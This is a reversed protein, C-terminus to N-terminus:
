RPSDPTWARPREAAPRQHLEAMSREYEIWPELGAAARREELREVDEVLPLEYLLVGGEGFVLNGLVDRQPRYQTAYLQPRGQAVRVRDTLYALDAPLAEGRQVAEELLPLCTAQFEPDRDAHQVMLFAANSAEAGVMSYTPWGYREVVERMRATNDRDVQEAREGAVMREEPTMADFDLTRVEQDLKGRELLEDRLAALEAADPATVPSM